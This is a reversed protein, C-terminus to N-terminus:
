GNGKTAVLRHRRLSYGCPKRLLKCSRASKKRRCYRQPCLSHSIQKETPLRKREPSQSGTRQAESTRRTHNKQPHNTRVRRCRKEDRPNERNLELIEELEAIRDPKAEDKMKLYRYKLDNDIRDYNPKATWYLMTCLLVIATMMGIM